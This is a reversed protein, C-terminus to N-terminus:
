PRKPKAPSPPPSTNQQDDPKSWVLILMRRPLGQAARKDWEERFLQRMRMRVELPQRRINESFDRSNTM